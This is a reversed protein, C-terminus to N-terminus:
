VATQKGIDPAGGTSTLSTESVDASAATADLLDLSYRDSSPTYPSITYEDTSSVDSVGSRNAPVFVIRNQTPSFRTSYELTDANSNYDFRVNGTNGGLPPNPADALPPLTYVESNYKAESEGSLGRTAMKQQLEQQITQFGQAGSPTYQVEDRNPAVIKPNLTQPVPRIPNTLTSTPYPAVPPAPPERVAGQQQYSVTGGITSMKYTPQDTGVLSSVKYPPEKHMPDLVYQKSNESSELTSVSSARIISDAPTTTGSMQSTLVYRGTNMPDVVTPSIQYQHEKLQYAGGSTPKYIIGGSDAVSSMGDSDAGGQMRAPVSSVPGGFDSFHGGGSSDFSRNHINHESNSSQRPRPQMTQANIIKPIAPTSSARTPQPRILRQRRDTEDDFVSDSSAYRDRKSDLRSKIVLPGSKRMESHKGAEDESSSVYYNRQGGGSPRRENRSSLRGFSNSRDRERDSFENDHKERNIRAGELILQKMISDDDDVLDIPKRGANDEEAASAGMRLLMETIKQYGNRAALHLPAEGRGNKANIDAGRKVLVEAVEGYDEKSRMGYMDYENLVSCHLPTEGESDRINVNAEFEEVLTIVTQVHGSESAVHLPSKERMGSFCAISTNPSVQQYCFLRILDVHGENSAIHIPIAGFMGKMYMDANYQLLLKALELHGYKSAIHLSANGKRDQVNPDAGKALLVKSIRYDANKVALFLPTRGMLDRINLDAHANLLANVTHYLGRLVSLHLATEIEPERGSLDERIYNINVEFQIMLQIFSPDAIKAAALLACYTRKSNKNTRYEEVCIKQMKKKSKIHEQVVYQFRKFNTAELAKLLEIGSDKM